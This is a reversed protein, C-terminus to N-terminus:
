VRGNMSQHLLRYIGNANSVIGAARKALDLKNSKLEGRDLVNSHLAYAEELTPLRDIIGYSVLTLLNALDTDVRDKEDIRPLTLINRNRDTRSLFLHVRESSLGNRVAERVEPDMLANEVRKGLDGYVGTSMGTKRTHVDEVRLAIHAINGESNVFVKGSSYPMIIDTGPLRQILAGQNLDDFCTFKEKLYEM